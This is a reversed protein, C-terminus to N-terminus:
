FGQRALWSASILLLVGLVCSEANQDGQRVAQARLVHVGHRPFAIPSPARPLTLVPPMAHAYKLACIM